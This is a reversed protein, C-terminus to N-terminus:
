RASQRAFKGSRNNKAFPQDALGSAARSSDSLTHRMVIQRATKKRTTKPRSLSEKTPHGAGAQPRGSVPKPNEEPLFERFCRFFLRGSTM